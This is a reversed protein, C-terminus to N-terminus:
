EELRRLTFPYRALYPAVVPGDASELGSLVIVYFGAPLRWVPVLLEIERGNAPDPVVTDLHVRGENDRVECRFYPFVRDVPRSLAIGVMRRDKALAIQRVDSRAVTLFYSEAPQFAEAKDLAGRLHPVVVFAQHAAGATVLLLAAAAGMPMPWFLRRISAVKRRTAPSAASEAPSEALVTRANAVFTAAAKVDEACERCEFLHEEFRDKAEDTLEGLIYKETAGARVADEHDM